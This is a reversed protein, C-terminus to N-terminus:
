QNNDHSRGNIESTCPIAKYYSTDCNCHSTSILHNAADEHHQESSTECVRKRSLTSWREEGKDNTVKLM